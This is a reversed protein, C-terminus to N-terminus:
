IVRYQDFYFVGRAKLWDKAQEVSEFDPSDEVRKWEGPMESDYDKEILTM